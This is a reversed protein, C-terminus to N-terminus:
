GARTRYADQLPPGASVDVEVVAPLGVSQGSRAAQLRQLEHLARYLARELGAEYRSLKSFADGNVCVGVFGDSLEVEDGRWSRRGKELMLAEIREFRRLRWASATVWGALLQELTGVPALARRMGRAFVEYEKPDEDSLLTDRSLLGHKLSNKSAALRGEATRPGTSRAANKRNALVRAPTAREATEGLNTEDNM